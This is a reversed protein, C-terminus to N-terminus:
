KNHILQPQEPKKPSWRLVDRLHGAYNRSVPIRQGNVLTLYHENPYYANLYSTNVIFSTHVRQFHEHLTEVEKMSSRIRFQHDAEHVILHHSGSETTIYIIRTLDFLRSTRGDPLRISVPRLEYIHHINLKATAVARLLRDFFASNFDRKIIFDLLGVHAEFCRMAMQANDSIMIIQADTDRQRILQATQIGALEFGRICSDLIIVQGQRTRGLAHLLASPSEFFISDLLVKKILRQSKLNDTLIYCPM